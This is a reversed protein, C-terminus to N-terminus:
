LTISQETWSPGQCRPGDPTWILPDICLRRATKEIDWAHYVVFETKDDPGLVISNHGPGIVKGEVGKLVSPGESSWEDHYPGIAQEAIGYSVGYGPTMWAGGSYFCYYLDDHLVVFTGEVTHWADWSGSYNSHGRAHIHWDHAARLVTRPKDTVSLMDDSLPVVATGTGVREDLFDKAFFLYWQGDKPDRFPHADISFDEQPMLVNGSDRFPGAPHDAVAVRLQHNRGEIGDASFYMYFTGDKEAVEPAWYNQAGLTTLPELAGGLCQWHALNRSHLVPFMRGDDSLSAGSSSGTGYAYYEGRWKLVFPDALYGPWVPNKYSLIM